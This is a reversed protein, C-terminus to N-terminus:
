KSTSDIHWTQEHEARENNTPFELKCFHCKKLNTKKKKKISKSKRPDSYTTIKDSSSKKRGGLEERNDSINSEHDQVQETLPDTGQFLIPPLMSLPETVTIHYNNNKIDIWHELTYKWNYQLDELYDSEDLLETYKINRNYNTAVLLKNNNSSSSDINGNKNSKNSKSKLYIAYESKDPNTWLQLKKKDRQVM